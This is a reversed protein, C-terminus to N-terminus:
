EIIVLIIPDLAVGQDTFHKQLTARIGTVFVYTALGVTGRDSKRNGDQSPNPTPQSRAGRTTHALPPSVGSEQSRVGSKQNRVENVGTAIKEIM